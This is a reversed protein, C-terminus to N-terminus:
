VGFVDRFKWVIQIRDESYVNIKEIFTNQIESTLETENKYKQILEAVHKRIGYDEPKVEIAANIKEKFENIKRDCEKKEVLYEEKTIRGDKYKEYLTTKTRELVKISREYMAKNEKTPAVSDCQKKRAEEELLFHRFHARLEAMVTNEMQRADVRFKYCDAKPNNDGFRCLYYDKHKSKSMKRGCCGCTFTNVSRKTFPREFVTIMAQVMAFEEATVIGEHTNEVRVWNEKDVKTDKGYIGDLTRKLSVMHGVYREDRLMNMIVSDDWATQENIKRWDMGIGKDIAYQAPSPVGRANLIRAIEAGSSGALKLEFIERVVPATDPNIVLKHKDDKSKLYGYPAYRSAFSGEKALKLRTARIKKSTDRSYTDYIYNKFVVDLELTKSKNKDSDYHDNISIFRIGLFPFIQELYDGIEIYDRAFRSFDKVIICDIEQKRALEILEMFGPRDLQKGSYGDDCKEIITAGVFEPVGQIFDMIMMRQNTISNSERKFTGIAVDDDEKSLRIYMGIVYPRNQPLARALNDM